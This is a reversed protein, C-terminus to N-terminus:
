KNKSAGKTILITVIILAVVGIIIVPLMKKLQQKRQYDAISGTIDNSNLMNAGTGILSGSWNPLQNESTIAGSLVQQAVTPNKQFYARLDNYHSTGGTSLAGVVGAPKNAAARKLESTTLAGGIVQTAGGLVAGLDLNDPMSYAPDYALGKKAKQQLRTAAVGIPAFLSGLFSDAGATELNMDEAEDMELWVEAEDTPIDMSKAVNDIQRCRLQYAQKILDDTKRAPTENQSLVYREVIPLNDKIIQRSYDLESAGDEGTANKIDEYQKVRARTIANTRAPKIHKGTRYMETLANAINSM